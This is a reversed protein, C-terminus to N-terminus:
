QLRESSTANDALELVAQVFQEGRDVYSAFMDLSACAPSLLVTDGARSARKAAQVAAPMSDVLENTVGVSDALERIAPGDKGLTVLHHVRSEFLACLPTLDVGKADGGAILVVQNQAPMGVLAAMTAGLNTAKSDNVYSVGDATAVHQFRHALGEFSVLAPVLDGLEIWQQTLACAALVNQENHEGALPLQSVPCLLEEGKAVYREGVSLRIGWDQPRQPADLGFSVANEAAEALEPVTLMDARNFVHQKANTYIRQKSAAYAQMSVHKDLHDETLNLVTSAVFPHHLSRELQFSSLELVYIDHQPDLLDMAALGLNGGVGCSFGSNNLLHGVLSTVTSKGNTGTIGIVPRQVAAFFLDIDSFLPVGHARASQLLCADMDLGPSVIACDVDVDPWSNTQWQIDVPCDPVQRPPRTDFIHVDVNQDLLFRVVSEGTVGYGLVAVSSLKSIDIASNSNM